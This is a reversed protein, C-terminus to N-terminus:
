TRGDEVSLMVSHIQRPRHSYDAIPGSAPAFVGKAKGLDGTSHNDTM